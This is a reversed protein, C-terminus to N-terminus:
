WGDVAIVFIGMDVVNHEIPIRLTNDFVGVFGENAHRTGVPIMAMENRNRTFFASEFM